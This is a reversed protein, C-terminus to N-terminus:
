EKDNLDGSDSYPITYQRNAELQDMHILRGNPWQVNVHEVVTSKGLGFHIKQSHQSRYSDGNVLEKISKENATRITIQLGTPSPIEPGTEPQFTIWNGTEPMRNLYLQLSEKIEPWIQYHIFLLDMRGDGNLDETVVNRTDTQIGVGWLHGVDLFSNGNRNLYLRNSEYGGYSQDKGRTEAFKEKFYLYAATNKDSDAVFADHLWYESEYDRVSQGSELGNGIYVDPYGDNDFDAASCGWAWGARTISASLKNQIYNGQQTSIFLRNGHALRARATPDNTLGPRHIGLHELRDVTPSTMGIMLLDHKGDANFDGLAHAMGFGLTEGFVSPVPSTFQGTGDNLYVDLGAFDSVVVLDPGNIGDMDALSASYIRRNRKAKPLAKETIDTFLLNGDNRFLYFPYGDNADWFPTPLSGGEYPIRYQGLFVDQDGDRDIDGTSLVIPYEIDKTSPRLMIEFQDFVGSRSGPMVVLGEHKHCLFDVAGDNNLDSLVATSLLGPPFTCLPTSAIQDENNLRLVLNKNALIIESRGDGDLDYVLLPDIAHANTPPASTANYVLEFPPSGQSVICQLQRTDIKILVPRSQDSEERHEWHIILPGEVMLRQKDQQQSLTARFYFESRYPASSPDYKTHRFEITNLKWQEQKWHEIWDKWEQQSLAKTTAANRLRQIHHREIEEFVIWDGLIVDPLDLNQVATLKSDSANIQDWWQEVIRSLSQAFMEDKWLTNAVIQEQEQIAAVKDRVDQNIDQREISTQKTATSNPRIRFTIWIGIGVLLLGLLWRQPFRQKMFCSIDDM